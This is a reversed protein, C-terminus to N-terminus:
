KRKKAPQLLLKLRRPSLLPRSQKKTRPKSKDTRPDRMSAGQTSAKTNKAPRKGRAIRQDTERLMSPPLLSAKAEAKITKQVLNEWDHLEKGNNEIQVKISPRLSDRFFRILYSEDPSGDDFELLVSQLYELHAAFDQVEELQYQAAQRM